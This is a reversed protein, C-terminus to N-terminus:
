RGVGSDNAVTRVFHVASPTAGGGNMAQHVFVFNRHLDEDGSAFLNVPENAIVLPQEAGAGVLSTVGWGVVGFMAVSAAVALIRRSWGEMGESATVGSEARPALVTPEARILAMVDDTFGPRTAQDGRLSDGILCYLDWQNKHAENKRMADLAQRAFVEDLEGDLLSSVEDKM